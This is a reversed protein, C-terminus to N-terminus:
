GASGPSGPSGPSGALTQRAPNHLGDLFFRLQELEADSLPERGPTLVAM